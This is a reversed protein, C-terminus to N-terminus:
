GVAGGYANRRQDSEYIKLRTKDRKNFVSEYIQDFSAAASSVFITDNIKDDRNGEGYNSILINMPKTKKDPKKLIEEISYPNRKVTEQPIEEFDNINDDLVTKNRVVHVFKNAESINGNMNQNRENTSKSHPLVKEIKQGAGSYIFNSNWFIHKEFSGYSSLNNSKIPNSSNSFMRVTQGSSELPLFDENVRPSYKDINTANRIPFEVFRTPIKLLNASDCTHSASLEISRIQVNKGLISTDSSLHACYSINNPVSGGFDTTNRFPAGM